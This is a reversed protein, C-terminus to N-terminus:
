QFNPFYNLNFFKRRCLGDLRKKRGHPIPMKGTMRPTPYADQRDTETHSLCGAQRDQHPIPMRGTTNKKIYAPMKGTM